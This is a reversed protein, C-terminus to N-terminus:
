MRSSTERLCTPWPGTAAYGRLSRLTLGVPPILPRRSNANIERSVDGGGSQQMGYSQGTQPKTSTSLSATSTVIDAHYETSSEAVGDFKIALRTLMAVIRHLLAKMAADDQVM